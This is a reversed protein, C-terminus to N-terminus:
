LRHDAVRQGEQQTRLRHRCRYARQHYTPSSSRRNNWCGQYGSTSRRQLRLTRILSLRTLYSSHFKCAPVTVVAHTVKHGLYAEATEKMKGLIM